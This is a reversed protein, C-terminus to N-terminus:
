LKKMCIEIKSDPLSVYRLLSRPSRGSIMRTRRYDIAVCLLLLAWTLAISLLISNRSFDFM